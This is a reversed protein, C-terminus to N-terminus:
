TAARNAKRNSIRALKAANPEYVEPRRVDVHEGGRGRAAEDLRPLPREPGGLAGPGVVDHVRDHRARTNKPDVVACAM